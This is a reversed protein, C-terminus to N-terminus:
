PHPEMGSGYHFAVVRGLWPVWGPNIDLGVRRVALQADNLRFHLNIHSSDAILRAPMQWTKPQWVADGYRSAGLRTLPEMNTLAPLQALAAGNEM